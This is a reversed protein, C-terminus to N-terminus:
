LILVGAVVAISRWEIRPMWIPAFLAVVAFGGLYTTGLLGLQTDNLGFQNATVSLFLPFANFVLAGVGSIMCAAVLVARDTLVYHAQEINPSISM